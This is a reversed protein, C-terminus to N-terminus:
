GACSAGGVSENFPDRFEFLRDEGVFSGPFDSFLTVAINTCM